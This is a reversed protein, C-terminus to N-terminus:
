ETKIVPKLAHSNQVIVSWIHCGFFFVNLSPFNPFTLTINGSSLYKLPWPLPRFYLDNEKLQGQDTPLGIYHLGISSTSCAIPKRCKYTECAVICVM